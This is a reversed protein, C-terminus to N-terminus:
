RGQGGKELWIPAGPTIFHPDYGLNL